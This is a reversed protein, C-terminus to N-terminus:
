HDRSVHFLEGPVGNSRTIDGSASLEFAKARGVEAGFSYWSTRAGGVVNGESREVNWSKMHCNSLEIGSVMTMAGSNSAM